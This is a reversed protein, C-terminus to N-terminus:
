PRRLAPRAWRVCLAALAIYMPTGTLRFLGAGAVSGQLLLAATVASRLAFVVAWVLDQQRFLGLLRADARWTAPVAHLQAAVHGTVPQGAGVALLLAASQALLTLVAPLFFTTATGSRLTLGVLALVAIFGGVAPLVRHGGRLREGLVLLAAVTGGVAGSAVGALENGVVFGVTPLSALLAVGAGGLADVARRLPPDGAQGARHADVPREGRGATGTRRGAQRDVRRDVRM